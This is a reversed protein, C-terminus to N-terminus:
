GWLSVLLFCVGAERGGGQGGLSPHQPNAWWGTSADRRATRVRSKADDKGEVVACAACLALVPHNGHALEQDIIVQQLDRLAPSMSQTGQGFPVFKAEILTETFGAEILWPKLHVMNWRDFALKRIDYEEFLKALYRAVYEYSVTKGPTTQLYGQRKWLDYPVRDTQAKLSLGVDPLWFTPHVQWVREVKGIMVLATLDAVSSLDLGAYVPVRHLDQPKAGCTKWVAQTVFPNSVEVRQNLVLNRFEAERAPMRRADEAMALVETKNMFVHLAPNAQEITALEFPDEDVPATNMRLVVRPDHGLKADDILISLLDSDTRAQTSIIISLPEAQAGVSTELADFMESRPGKVQGLEDHVILAPNLGYSTPADASLARYTAGSVRYFLEKRTERIQIARHLVPNMRIMKCLLNFVLAAQDRSQAASFLQANRHKEAEPGRLHLLVILAAEITKGNKRGRTIIARRTGVPNDYIQRFDERMFPAIELRKGVNAGDPVFCVEELWDINREARTRKRPPEAAKSPKKKSGAM